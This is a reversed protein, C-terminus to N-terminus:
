AVERHYQTWQQFPAVRLETGIELAREELRWTQNQSAMFLKGAIHGLGAAIQHVAEPDASRLSAGIAAELDDALGRISEAFSRTSDQLQLQTAGGDAAEATVRQRPRTAELSANM